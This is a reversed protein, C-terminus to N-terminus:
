RNIKKKLILMNEVTKLIFILSSKSALTTLKSVFTARRSAWTLWWSDIKV